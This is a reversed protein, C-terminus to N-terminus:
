IKDFIPYLMDKWLTTYKLAQEWESTKENGM